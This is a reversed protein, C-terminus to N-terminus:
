LYSRYLIPGFYETESLREEVENLDDALALYDMHGGTVDPMENSRSNLLRATFIDEHRSPVRLANAKNSWHWALHFVICQRVEVRRPTVRALAAIGRSNEEIGGSQRALRANKRNQYDM